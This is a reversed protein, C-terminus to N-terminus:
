QPSGARPSAVKNNGTKAMHPTQNTIKMKVASKSFTADAFPSNSDNNRNFFDPANQQRCPTRWFCLMLGRLWGELEKTHPLGIVAPRIPKTAAMIGTAMISKPIVSITQRDQRPGALAENPHRLKAASAIAIGADMRPMDWDEPRIHPTKPNAKARGNAARSPQFSQVENASSTAIM